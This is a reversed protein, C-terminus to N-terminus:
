NKIGAKKYINNVEKYLSKLIYKKNPDSNIEVLREVSCEQLLKTTKVIQNYFNDKQEPHRSKSIELAETFDIEKDLYQKKAKYDHLIKPLSRIEEARKMSDDTM